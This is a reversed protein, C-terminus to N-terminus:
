WGLFATIDLKDTLRLKLLPPAFGAGGTILVYSM